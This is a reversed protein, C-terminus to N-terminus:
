AGVELRMRDRYKGRIIRWCLLHVSVTLIWSVPYSIYLSFLTHQWRFITLIWVVRLGCAGVLSVVMPTFSYGMGRLSGVTVDMLGCLFYCTCIVQMRMLGYGIVRPDTSYAQLLYKGLLFFGNGLGLGIVSVIALCLLLIRGIRRHNGAGMNQSTFSLATQYIANMSTYVFGELNAAATNGAVAIAGFSNVSSQILVNSVAFIGGQVGAPLGIQLIRWVKKGHLRLKGLELRCMGEERALCRLVLLASVTQSIATALAVGAVGLGFGIVFFLNLAVNIGGALMLFYLPRRTDGTARLIAAGFNYAMFAPMGLFYIRMYLAAQDLVKAPTAMLELLPRALFIGLFLLLIGCILSLLIATHVTESTNKQDRAGCYQATLVNAGISLGMFVNVFLTILSSTSGVAALATAGTFRGVVVIDAANFLLQLIGSFVLPVAFLLLKGFLPGHCMDIEYNKRMAEEGKEESAM